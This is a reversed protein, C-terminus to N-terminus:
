AANGCLWTRIQTPARGTRNRWRPILADGIVVVHALLSGIQGICVAALLACGTLRVAHMPLILRANRPERASRQCRMSLAHIVEITTSLHFFRLDHCRKGRKSLLAPQVRIAHENPRAWLTHRRALDCGFKPNGGVGQREMEITQPVRPKHTKLPVTPRQDIRRAVVCHVSQDVVQGLIAAAALPPPGLRSGTAGWPPLFLDLSPMARRCWEAKPESCSSFM